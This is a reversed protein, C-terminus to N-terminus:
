FDQLHHKVFYDQIFIDGNAIYAAIHWPLAVILFIIVGPIIFSPKFLEKGRRFALFTLATVMIPIIIGILGKQLVSLGMFFYALYWFYKKNEEKVDFLTIIASYISLTCLATFGM